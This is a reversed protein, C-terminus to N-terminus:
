KVAKTGNEAEYYYRKTDSDKKPFLWGIHDEPAKGDSHSYKGWSETSEETGNEKNRGSRLYFHTTEGM